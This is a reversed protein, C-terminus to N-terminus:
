QAQTAVVLAEDIKDQKLLKNMKEIVGGIKEEEQVNQIHIKMPDFRGYKECFSNIKKEIDELSTFPELKVYDAAIQKADAVSLVESQLEKIIEKLLLFQVREEVQAVTAMSM